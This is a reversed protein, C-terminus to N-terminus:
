DNKIISFVILSNDYNLTSMILSELYINDVNEIGLQKVNDVFNKASLKTSIGDSYQAVFLVNNKKFRYVDPTKSSCKGFEHDGLSRSVCIKNSDGKNNVVVMGRGELFGGNEEIRLMDYEPTHDITEVFTYDKAVVIAKSDGLNVIIIEDDHYILVNLTMGGDGVAKSFKLGYTKDFKEVCKKIEEDNSLDVHRFLYKFHCFIIEHYAKKTTKEDFLTTHGDLLIIMEPISYSGFNCKKSHEHTQFYLFFDEMLFKAICKISSAFAKFNKSEFEFNGFSGNGNNVSKDMQNYFYSLHVNHANLYPKKYDNFIKDIDMQM